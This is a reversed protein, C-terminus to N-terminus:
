RIMRIRDLNEKAQQHAVFCYFAKLRDCSEYEDCNACTILGKERCCRRIPCGACGIFISGESRCGSCRMDEPKLGSMGFSELIEAYLRSWEEATKQRLQDDNRVTAILVPCRECNLGCYALAQDKM